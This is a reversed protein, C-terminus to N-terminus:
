LHEEGETKSTSILGMLWFFSHFISESRVGAAVHLATLGDKTRANIDLGNVSLLFRAVDERAQSVAHILATLGDCDSANINPGSLSILLRVIGEHGGSAAYSLSSAGRNDTANIDVGPLSVLFRVVEEHGAWAAYMLATSGDSDTPNLDIGTLSVLFRVMREYGKGAARLLVTQGDDDKAELNINRSTLLKRVVDQDGKDCALMLPTCGERGERADVDLGPAALLLRVTELRAPLPSRSAGVAHHLATWGHKDQANVNRHDLALIEAVIEPSCCAAAAMLITCRGICLSRSRPRTGRAIILGYMGAFDESRSGSLWIQIGLVQLLVVYVFGRLCRYVWPVHNRGIDINTVGYMNCAFRRVFGTSM